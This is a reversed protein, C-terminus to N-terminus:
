WKVLKKKGSTNLYIDSMTPKFHYVLLVLIDTDDAVVIVQQNETARTLAAKVIDCDADDTSQIVTHGAGSLHQMLLKILQDKNHGSSLFSEQGYSAVITEDVTINPASAKGSRRLHEHDKTSPGNGYGDFVVTVHRGDHGCNRYIYGSYTTVIDGYTAGKPPWKAKHLLCGGDLVYSSNTVSEWPITAKVSLVKGLNAKDPKRMVSEKFLSAPLATLEYAFPVGTDSNRAALLILRDFLVTSHVFLKKNNVTIGKQLQVLTKVQNKKRLQIDTFALGDIQQQINTGVQEVRDCNIGDGETATVGSSLSRLHNDSQSFPDFTKFWDVFKAVDIIDRRIRSKSMDVHDSSIDLEMKTLSQMASHVAACQHLTETWVLRVNDTVGSGHTLGGRGKISRMFTQEIVLDTSLGAWYRDTRRVVHHGHEKFQNFLWPHSEPLDNMLQLYLRACKTYMNHGTAAFLNLM